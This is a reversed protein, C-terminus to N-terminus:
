PNGKRRNARVYVTFAVAAVAAAVIMLSEHHLRSVDWLQAPDFHDPDLAFLVFISLLSLVGIALAWRATM